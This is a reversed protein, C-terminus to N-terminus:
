DDEEDSGPLEDLPREPWRAHRRLDPNWLRFGEDSSVQRSQPDRLSGKDDKRDPGISYVGVGENVRCFRLRCGDYPDAPIRAIYWPTIDTPPDPWHGNRQRYREVALATAACRLQAQVRWYSEVFKGKGRGLIQLLAPQGKLTAELDRLADPPPPERKCLEVLDTSYRLYWARYWNIREPAYWRDPNAAAGKKESRGLFDAALKEGYEMDKRSVEGDHAKQLFLDIRARESRAVIILIPVRAEDQVLEQTSSLAVFSPTGQALIRELTTVATSQCALRVLQAIAEPEDGIARGANLIARCSALASDLDGEETRVWADMELLKVITRVEHIHPNSSFLAAVASTSPGAPLRGQPMRALKRAEILAPDAQHLEGELVARQQRNFQIDAPVRRIDNEYQIRASFALERGALRDLSQWTPWRKPLRKHAALLCLASNDADNIAARNGELDQWRWGPDLRDTEEIGVQLAEEPDEPLPKRVLKARLYVALAVCFAAVLLRRRWRRPKTLLSDVPVLSPDESPKM